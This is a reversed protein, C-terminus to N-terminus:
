GELSRNTTAIKNLICRRVDPSSDKAMLEIFASVVPCRPDADQFFELAAM